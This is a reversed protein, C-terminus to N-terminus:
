FYFDYIIIYSPMQQRADLNSVAIRVYKSIKDRFTIEINFCLSNELTAKNAFPLINAYKPICLLVFLVRRAPSLAPKWMAM